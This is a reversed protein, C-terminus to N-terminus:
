HSTGAKQRDKKEGLKEFYGKLAALFINEDSRCVITLHAYIIPNNREYM